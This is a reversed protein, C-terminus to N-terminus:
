HPRQRLYEEVQHGEFWSIDKPIEEEVMQKVEKTMNERLLGLMEPAAIVCLKDFRHENRAKDLERAVAESFREVEKQVPTVDSEDTDAPAKAGKGVHRGKPEANIDQNRMRGKPNVMDEIEHLHHDASWEFIRARYGDAALVWTTQM